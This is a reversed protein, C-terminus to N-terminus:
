YHHVNLNGDVNIRMQGSNAGQMRYYFEQSQMLRQQQQLMQQNQLQNSFDNIGSVFQQNKFEYCQEIQLPTANPYENKCSQKFDMSACGCLTIAFCLFYRNMM